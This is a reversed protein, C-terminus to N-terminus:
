HLTIVKRFCWIILWLTFDISLWPPTSNSLVFRPTFNTSSGCSISFAQNRPFTLFYCFFESINKALRFFSIWVLGLGLSFLNFTHHIPCGNGVSFVSNYGTLNMYSVVFSVTVVGKVTFFLFCWVKIKDSAVIQWLLWIVFRLSPLATSRVPTSNGIIFLPALNTSFCGSISKTLNRPVALFLAFIEM